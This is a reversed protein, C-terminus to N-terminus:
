LQAMVGASCFFDGLMSLPGTNHLCEVRCAHFHHVVWTKPFGRRCHEKTPVIFRGFLLDMVQESLKAKARDIAARQLLGAVNFRQSHEINM